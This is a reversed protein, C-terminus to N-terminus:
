ESWITGHIPKVDLSALARELDEFGHVTRYARGEPLEDTLPNFWVARIGVENAALVDGEFSDGIMVVQSPDLCFSDLVARYFERSPKRHGMQRFCFIRDFYPELDCRDLARRIDAEMSDEANTALGITFHPALGELASRIGPVDEVEPWESMPGDFPLVRMVTDGWDFLLAQSLRRSDLRRSADSM